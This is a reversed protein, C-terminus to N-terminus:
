ILIIEIGELSETVRAIKPQLIDDLDANTIIYEKSEQLPMKTYEHLGTKSSVISGETANAYFLNFNNYRPPDPPYIITTDVEISERCALADLVLLGRSRRNTDFDNTPKDTLGVILGHKNIGLWTGGAKTDKAAFIGSRIEYPESGKRDYCEDRNAAVVIPYNQILKFLIIALCM